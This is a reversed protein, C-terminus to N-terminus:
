KQDREREREEITSFGSQVRSMYWVCVGFSIKRKKRKKEQRRLCVHSHQDREKKGRKACKMLDTLLPKIPYVRM